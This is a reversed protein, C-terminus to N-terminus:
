WGLRYRRWHLMMQWARPMTSELRRAFDPELVPRDGEELCNAAILRDVLQELDRRLKRREAWSFKEGAYLRNLRDLRAGPAEGWIRKYWNGRIARSEEIRRIRRFATLNSQHRRAWYLREPVNAFRTREVMRCYLDMDGLLVKSNFGGLGALVERRFVAEAGGISWGSLFLNIIIHAHRLPFNIDRLPKLNEDVQKRQAGVVGIEPNSQLYDVQIELRRPLSIDDSDMKAIYAGRAEALGLNLASSQGRNEKLQFSRIREDRGAFERIVEATGDESGDDVVILEFDAYTQALISEIAEPLYREDNYVALLVSVTPSPM